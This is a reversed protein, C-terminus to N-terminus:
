ATEAAAQQETESDLKTLLAKAKMRTVETADTAEISAELAARAEKNMGLNMLCFGAQLHPRPDDINFMAAFAYVQAAEFWEEKMQLTAALAMKYKPDSYEMLNIFRFITEADDYKGNQYYTRGMSYILELDKPKLGVIDGIATGTMLAEVLAESQKGAEGEQNMLKVFGKAVNVIDEQGMEEPAKLDAPIGAM